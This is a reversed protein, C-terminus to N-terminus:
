RGRGARRAAGGAVAGLAPRGAAPAAPARRPDPRPRPPPTPECGAQAGIIVPDWATTDVLRRFPARPPGKTLAHSVSDLGGPSHQQEVTESIVSRSAPISRRACATFDSCISCVPPRLPAALWLHTRGEGPALVDHLQRSVDPSWLPTRGGGKAGGTNWM